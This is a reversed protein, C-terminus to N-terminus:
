AVRVGRALKNTPTRLRYTTLTVAAIGLLV